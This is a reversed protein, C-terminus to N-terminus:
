PALTGPTGQNALTHEQAPTGQNALTHEQTRPAHTCRHPQADTHMRTRAYTIRTHSLARTHLLQERRDGVCGFKVLVFATNFACVGAHRGLWDQVLPHSVGPGESLVIHYSRRGRGGEVAGRWARASAPDHLCTQSAVDARSEPRSPWSGRPECVRLPLDRADEGFQVRVWHKREGPRSCTASGERRRPVCVGTERWCTELVFNRRFRRNINACVSPPMECPKHQCM